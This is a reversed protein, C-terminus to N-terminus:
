SMSSAETVDLKAGSYVNELIKYSGVKGGGNEKEKRKCFVQTKKKYELTFM